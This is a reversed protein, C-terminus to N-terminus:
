IHSMLFALFMNRHANGNFDTKSNELCRLNGVGSKNQDSPDCVETM